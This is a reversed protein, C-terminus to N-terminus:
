NNVSKITHSFQENGVPTFDGDANKPRCGFQAQLRDRNVRVLIPKRQVPELRIFRVQDPRHLAPRRHLPIQIDRRQDRDGFLMAHIRNMRPIPKQRLIRFKRPRACSAPIVNTPGSASSSSVNPSLVAAFRSAFFASTGVSGPM